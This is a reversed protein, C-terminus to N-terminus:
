EKTKIIIREVEHITSKVIVAQQQDNGRFGGSIQQTKLSHTYMKRKFNENVFFSLM